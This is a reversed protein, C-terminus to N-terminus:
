VGLNNTGARPGPVHLKVSAKGSQAVDRDLSQTANALRWGRAGDEFGANPVVNPNEQKAKYDAVFAGGPGALRLGTDGIRVSTVQGSPSLQLRLGDTTAIEEPAARAALSLLAFATLAANRISM